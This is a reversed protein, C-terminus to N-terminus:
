RARGPQAPSGAPVGKGVVKKQGQRRWRGKRSVGKEWRGWENRLRELHGLRHRAAPGRRRRGLRGGDVGQVVRRVAAQAEVPAAAHREHRAEGALVHRLHGRGDVRRGAEGDDAAEGARRGGGHLEGGCRERGRLSQEARRRGDRGVAEEELVEEVGVLLSLLVPAGAGMGEGAAGSGRGERAGFARGGQGAGEGSGM